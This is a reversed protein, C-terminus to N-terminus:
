FGATHFVRPLAADTGFHRVCSRNTFIGKAFNIM